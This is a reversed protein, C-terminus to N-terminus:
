AFAALAPFYETHLYIATAQISIVMAGFRMSLRPILLHYAAWAEFENSKFTEVTVRSQFGINTPARDKIEWTPCPPM